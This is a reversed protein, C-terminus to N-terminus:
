YATQPCPRGSGSATGARAATDHRAAIVCGFLVLLTGAALLMLQLGPVDRSNAVMAYRPAGEANGGDGAALGPSGSTQGPAGVSSPSPAVPAASPGASPASPAASPVSPAASPTSPAASPVSPAAPAAASPAPAASSVLGGTGPDPAPTAGAPPPTTSLGPNAGLNTAPNAAPSGGPPGGGAAGGGGGGLPSQSSGGGGGDAAGGGAGPGPAPSTPPLQSATFEFTDVGQRTPMATGAPTNVVVTVKGPAHAPTLAVLVDNGDADTTREAIPVTAGDLAIDTAGALGKGTVALRTGGEAPGSPPALGKLAARYTMQATASGIGNAVSVTAPGPDHPPAEFTINGAGISTPTIAQGDLTVTGGLHSGSITVSTGGTAPLVSPDVGTIAPAAAYVFPITRCDDAEIGDVLVSIEVPGEGTVPPASVTVRKGDASATGTATSTGFRVSVAGGDAPRLGLGTITLPTGGATSAVPPSMEQVTPVGTFLEATSIADDSLVAGGGAYLVRGITADCGAVALVGSEHAVAYPATASWANTRPDFIHAVLGAGFGTRITDGAALIRGGPLSVTHISNGFHPVQGSYPGTATWKNTKPDYLQAHDAQDTGFGFQGDTVLVRGDPLRDASWHIGQHELPGTLSWTETKPDFIEASQSAPDQGPEPEPPARRVFGGAVLVRGDSLQAAAHGTRSVNLDATRAWDGTDPDYIEAETMTYGGGWEGGAVLVRGDGMATATFPNIHTHERPQLLSGTAAWTGTWPDYLETSAGEVGGVALVNGSPLPVLTPEIRAVTMSGTPKWTNTVPDYLEASSFANFFSGTVGGAVLVKGCWQPRSTARCPPGDLLVASARMRATAMPSTAVWDGPAAAQAPAVPLWSMATGVVAAVVMPWLVNRPVPRRRTRAARWRGAM